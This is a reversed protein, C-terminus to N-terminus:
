LVKSLFDRLRPHVPNEFFEAGSGEELLKGESMFLIRNGVERAFGMEHTVVVMTMGEHALQKMVDLVEGVMEPDLASTPEDFLMVTPEMMLARVIAIRQKQGGSLQIPYADARDELGVRKLLETAKVRAMDEPVKLVKTPALIMNDMITKHPFLNFHQFVMGMKQRLLDVNVKVWKGNEDKYKKKTIDKNEFIISGGTPEELLNLSRLFTSKGSGSPGIVVMVDGRNIDVTVGDLAKIKGFNYHKELDTVKILEDRTAM